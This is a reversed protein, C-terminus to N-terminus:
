VRSYQLRNREIPDDMADAFNIAKMDPVGGGLHKNTYIENLYGVGNLNAGHVSNVNITNMTPWYPFDRNADDDIVLDRMPHLPTNPYCAQGGCTSVGAASPYALRSIMMQNPPVHFADESRVHAITSEVITRPQQQRAVVAPRAYRYQSTDYYQLANDLTSPNKSCLLKQLTPEGAMKPEPPQFISPAPKCYVPDNPRTVIVEGGGNVFTEKENENEKEKEGEFGEVVTGTNTVSGDTHLVDTTNYAHRHPPVIVTPAAMVSPAVIDIIPDAITQVLPQVVTTTPVVVDPVIVTPQVVDPVIVTPQAQSVVTPLVDPVIVTPQAQSVITTPIPIRDAMRDMVYVSTDPVALARDLYPSTVTDVYQVPVTTPVVGNEANWLDQIFRLILEDDHKFELYKHIIFRLTPPDPVQKYIQAYLNMVAMEIQRSTMEGAMNGLTNTQNKSLIDYEKSSVLISRLKDEDFSPETVMRNYYFMLEDQSPQRELTEQFIANVRNYISADGVTEATRSNLVGGTSGPDTRLMQEVDSQTKLTNSVMLQVYTDLEHQTPLRNLVKAYAAKVAVRYETRLKKILRSKFAVPEFTSLDYNARYANLEQIPMEMGYVERYTQNMQYLITSDNQASIIKANTKNPLVFSEDGEAFHEKHSERQNRKHVDNVAIMYGVLFIAFLLLLM